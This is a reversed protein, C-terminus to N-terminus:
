AQLEMPYTDENAPTDLSEQWSSREHFVACAYDALEANLSAGFSPPIYNINKQQIYAQEDTILQNVELYEALTPGGLECEMMLQKMESAVQESGKEEIYEQFKQLACEFNNM